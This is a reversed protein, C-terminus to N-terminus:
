RQGLLEGLAARLWDDFDHPYDHGLGAVVELRITPLDQVTEATSALLDDDDGIVVVGPPEHTLGAVQDRWVAAAVALVGAVPVPTGSLAWLLAARAGASFGAAVVPLGREEPSLTALAAAVDAAAAADDPWTRFTPTSLQSSDVAVVLLGEDTAASWRAAGAAADQGAGHLVVLVATPPRAPRRLVPPLPGAAAQAAAQRATAEAVLDAFGPRDRLSALDDDEVLLRPHWWAGEAAASQLARMAADPEGDLAHLCAATHALDSPYTPLSSEEAAILALAEAYREDGYLRFLERNVDEYRAAEDPTPAATM